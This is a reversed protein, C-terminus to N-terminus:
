NPLPNLTLPSEFVGYFVVRVAQYSPKQRKQRTM